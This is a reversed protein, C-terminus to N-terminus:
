LTQVLIQSTTRRNKQEETGKSVIISKLSSKSILKAADVVDDWSAKWNGYHINYDISEHFLVYM